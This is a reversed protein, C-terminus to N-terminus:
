ITAAGFQKLGIAVEKDYIRETSRFTGSYFPVAQRKVAHCLIHSVGWSDHTKEQPSM